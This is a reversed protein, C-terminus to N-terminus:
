LCAGRAQPLLRAALAGRMLALQTGVAAAAAAAVAGDAEERAPRPPVAATGVPASRGAREAAARVRDLRREVYDWVGHPDPREIRGHANRLTPVLAWAYAVTGDAALALVAPEAMGHEYRWPLATPRSPVTIHVAFDPITASLESALEHGDDGFFAVHPPLGAPPAATEACVEAKGQSQASVFLLAADAVALRKALARVSFWRKLWRKCFHSWEGRYWVVIVPRGADRAARFADLAGAMIPPSTAVAANAQVCPWM